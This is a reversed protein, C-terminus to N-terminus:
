SLSPILDSVPLSYARTSGTKSLLVMEKKEDIKALLPKGSSSSTVSIHVAAGLRPIVKLSLEPAYRKRLWLELVSAEKRLV